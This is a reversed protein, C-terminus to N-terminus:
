LDLVLQQSLARSVCIMMSDGEEREDESLVSDRHDPIGDLVMTECTGCVGEGCSSVTSAGARRAVELISEDAQVQLTLGSIELHVEIPQNNSHDIPKASFREVRLRKPAWVQAAKEIADLLPQPGCCYVLGEPSLAPLLQELEILGKEDEPWATVRDGYSSLEDLFAMSNRTRGGYVLKWNKGRAEVQQVMALIPTIGIGGAIFLYEPVDSLPFHNRPGRARLVTGEKLDHHIYRSVGSGDMDLLVGIRWSDRDGPVGCLSYQKFKGDPMILDIHAGPSWARLQGGAPDRLTLVAVREAAVEVTEVLVDIESEEGSRATPAALIFSGEKVNHSM